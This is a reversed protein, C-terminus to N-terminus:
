PITAWGCIGSLLRTMVTLTPSSTYIDKSQIFIPAKGYRQRRLNM